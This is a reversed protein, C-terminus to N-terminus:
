GQLSAITSAFFFSCAADTFESPSELCPSNEARKIRLPNQLIGSRNESVKSDGARIENRSKRASFFECSHQRLSKSCYGAFCLVIRSNPTGSMNSLFGMRFFSIENQVMRIM